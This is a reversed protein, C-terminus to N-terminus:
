LDEALRYATWFDSDDFREWGPPMVGVIECLANNLRVIQGTVASRGGFRRNWFRSSVLITCPAGAAADSPLIGRGRFRAGGGLSLFEPSLRRGVLEEPRGGLLITRSAGVSVAIGRFVDKRELLAAYEVPSLSGWPHSPSEQESVHVLDGPDKVPLPRLLLSN